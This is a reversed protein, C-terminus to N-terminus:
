EGDLNVSVVLRKGVETHSSETKMRGDSANEPSKEGQILLELAILTLAIMFTDYM